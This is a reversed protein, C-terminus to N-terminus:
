LEYDLDYDDSLVTNCVECVENVIAPVSSASDYSEGCDSNIVTHTLAFPM